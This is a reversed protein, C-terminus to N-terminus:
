SIACNDDHWILKPMHHNKSIMFARWKEFVEDVTIAQMYLNNRCVSQRNSYANVCSGCAIEM